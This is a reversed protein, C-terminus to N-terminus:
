RPSEEVSRQWRSRSRPRSCPVGAAVCDAASPTDASGTDPAAPTITPITPAPTAPTAFHHETVMDRTRGAGVGRADIQGLDAPLDRLLVLLEDASPRGNPEKALCSEVVTRLAM